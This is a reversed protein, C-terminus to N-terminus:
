SCSSKIASKPQCLKEGKSARIPVDCLLCDAMLKVHQNWELWQDYKRELRLNESGHYALTLALEAYRGRLDLLKVRDEDIYRATSRIFFLKTLDSQLGLICNRNGAITIRLGAKRSFYVNGDGDFIGRFFHWWVDQPVIPFLGAYSKNPVVGLRYFRQAAQKSCIHLAHMQKKGVFTRGNKKDVFERDPHNHPIIPHTSELVNKAIELIHVDSSYFIVQTFKKDVTGDTLALGLIYALGPSWVDLVNLNLQYRMLYM